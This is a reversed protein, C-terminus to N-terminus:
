MVATHLKKYYANLVMLEAFSHHTVRGSQQMTKECLCWLIHRLDLVGAAEGRQTVLRVVFPPSPRRGDGCHLSQKTLGPKVGGCQGQASPTMRSWFAFTKWITWIYSNLPKSNKNHYKTASNCFYIHFDGASMAMWCEMSKFVIGKCAM